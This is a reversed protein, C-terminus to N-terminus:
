LIEATRALEPPGLRDIRMGELSRRKDIAQALSAAYLPFEALKTNGSEMRHLGWATLTAYLSELFDPDRLCREVSAGLETRIALTKHHFYLSPGTFLNEAEFVAGYEEFGVALERVRHRALDKKHQRISPSLKGMARMADFLQDGTIPYDSLTSTSLFRVYPAM